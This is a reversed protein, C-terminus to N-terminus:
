ISSQGFSYFVDLEVWLGWFYVGEPGKPRRQKSVWKQTVWHHPLKIEMLAQVRLSIVLDSLPPFFKGISFMSPTYIPRLKALSWQQPKEKSVTIPSIPSCSCIWNGSSHSPGKCRLHKPTRLTVTTWGGKLNHQWGLSPQKTKYWLLYRGM